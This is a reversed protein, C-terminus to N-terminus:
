VDIGTDGAGRDISASGTGDGHDGSASGVGDDVVDYREDYAEDMSDLEDGTGYYTGRRTDVSDESGIGPNEVSNSMGCDPCTTIYTPSVDNQDPEFENIEGCNYCEFRIM